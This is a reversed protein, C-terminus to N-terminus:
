LDEKGQPVSAYRYLGRRVRTLIGARELRSIIVRATAERVGIAHALSAATWTHPRSAMLALARSTASNM